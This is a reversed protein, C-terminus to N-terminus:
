SMPWVSAVLVVAAAVALLIIFIIFVIVDAKTSMNGIRGTAESWEDEQIRETKMKVKTRRFGWGKPRSPAAYDKRNTTNKCSRLYHTEQILYQM